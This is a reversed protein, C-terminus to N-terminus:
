NAISPVLFGVLQLNGQETSLTSNNCTISINSQESIASFLMLLTGMHFSYIFNIIAGAVAGAGAIAGAVAVAVAGAVAGAIAVAVAIAGAVAVAIAGAVAGAVALIM